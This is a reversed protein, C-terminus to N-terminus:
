HTALDLIKKIIIKTVFIIFYYLSVMFILCLLCAISLQLKAVSNTHLQEKHCHDFDKLSLIGIQEQFM